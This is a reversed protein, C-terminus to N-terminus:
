SNNNKFITQQIVQQIGETYREVGFRLLVDQRGAEGLNRAFQPNQLLHVIAEAMGGSDRIQVLLGTVGHKIVEEPGGCRTSVVPTEVALAEIITLGFSEQESSVVLVDIGALLEHIKESPWWGTLMVSSMLGLSQIRDRLLTTHSESGAGVLLFVIDKREQLIKKAAELFTFHDKRLHLAGVVAVINYAPNIGFRQTILDHSCARDLPAPFPLGNHVVTTKKALTPYAKALSGSCFIVSKSLFGVFWSYLRFPLIPMLENNGPVYEHIHWIHPKGTMRAAVAGEVCAITNTYVLDIQNRLIIHAIGWSRARLTKLSKVLHHFRQQRSVTHVGPVWHILHRVFVTIGLAKAACGLEGDAPVLLYPEFRSRDINALLTLLTRQAGAM